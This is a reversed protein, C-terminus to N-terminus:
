RPGMESGFIPGPDPRKPAVGGSIPHRAIGRLVWPVLYDRTWALDETRAQRWGQPPLPLPFLPQLSHDVNLADLVMVAVTHHGLASLHLRDEDWMQPDALRSLAWMDAVVADHQAAITRLNENFIAIKARFRGLVTSRGSDPGVFLVVTAGGSALVAIAPDLMAAMKDPDSGPHIIDNGGAQFSVLDPKLAMAPALQCDIVQELLLGRVALNAYSFGNQRAGLEEATRDAWGRHGGVSGPDPDGLGETLSDGLAVYRHWPHQNAM